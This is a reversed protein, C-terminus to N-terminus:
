WVYRKYLWSGIFMLVGLSINMWGSFVAVKREKELGKDKKYHGIDVWLTFAGTALFLMTIYNLYGVYSTGEAM